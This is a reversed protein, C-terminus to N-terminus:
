IIDLERSDVMFDQMLSNYKFFKCDYKECEEKKVNKIVEFHKESSWVKSFGDKVVNGIKHSSKRHRFYCCNYADAFADVLIHVPSMFCRVTPKTSKLSGTVIIDEKHIEKLEQLRKDLIGKQFDDMESPVNRYSKFQICDCGLDAALRVAKEMDNYNERGVAFKYDINCSPNLEDRLKVAKKINQCVSFFNDEAAKPRKVKDFVKQSGSEMSVRIYAARPILDELVKGKLKTGNTIMGIIWGYEGAKLIMEHIDPHLMSEGLGCFEIFRISNQLHLENFVKKWQEAPMVYRTKNENSWDCGVCSHNCLCSPMFNLMRPLPMVGKIIKNAENYYSFIRADFHKFIQKM